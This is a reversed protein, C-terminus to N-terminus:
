GFDNVLIDRGAQGISSYALDAVGLNVNGPIRTEGADL